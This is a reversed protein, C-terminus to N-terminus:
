FMTLAGTTVVPAALEATREREAQDAELLQERIGALQRDCEAIAAALERQAKCSRHAQCARCGAEHRAARARRMVRAYAWQRTQDILEAARTALQEGDPDAIRAALKPVRSM